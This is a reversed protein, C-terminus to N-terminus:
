INEKESFANKFKDMYKPALARFLVIFRKLIAWCDEVDALAEHSSTRKYGFYECISDLNYGSLNDNNHFFWRVCDLLDFYHFSSFLKQQGSEEVYGYKKCLRDMIIMDFGKINQGAPILRHYFKDSRQFQRCFKCFEEFVVKQEPFTEIEKKTLKNVELAKDQIISWDTPKMFSHFRGNEKEELTNVDYVVAAIEVPECTFPDSGGTELDFCIIHNDIKTPKTWKKM